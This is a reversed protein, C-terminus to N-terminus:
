KSLNQWTKMKSTEIWIVTKFRWDLCVFLSVLGNEIKINKKSKKLPGWCGKLDTKTVIITVGRFQTMETIIEFAVSSKKLCRTTYHLPTSPTASPVSKLIYYISFSSCLPHKGRFPTLIIRSALSFNCNESKKRVFTRYKRNTKLRTCFVHHLEKRTKM